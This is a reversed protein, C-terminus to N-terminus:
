VDLGDPDGSSVQTSLWNSVDNLNKQLWQVRDALSEEAQDLEQTAFRFKRANRKRFEKVEQLDKATSLGALGAKVLEGLVITSGGYRKHLVDWNNKIYHFFLRSAVPNRAVGRLVIYVDQLRIVRKEEGVELIESFLKNLIWPESTCALAPLMVEAASSDNTSEKFRKWIFAWEKRGGKRVATCYVVWRDEVPVPNQSNPDPSKMWEKYLKVSRSLCDEHDLRCAWKMVMTRLHRQNLSTIDTKEHLEMFIPSLLKLIYTELLGYRSTHKLVDRLYGFAGLAATWPVLQTEKSLFTTVQLAISYNLRGAQALSLADDIIQAKTVDPLAVAGSENALLANSLMRWNQEDYNVRYFGTEQLNFIVWRNAGVPLSGKALERDGEGSLLWFRPKTNHFSREAASTYTVPIHWKEKPPPAADEEAGAEEGSAKKGKPSMLFREQSVRASGDTYNRIVTVVPYGEQLTWTDMVDKVTLGDPLPNDKGNSQAAETLSEWLDDQEANSYSWKKLYSILGKRFTEEGLTHNMMRVLCSGKGYSVADFLEAIAANDATTSNGPSVAHTSRLSDYWMTSQVEETVFRDLMAWDPEVANTGIYEVYTAFGENLWLDNWWKMTVLNGFWQHALEHSVTLAVDVKHSTSDKRPDYLLVSERYTVLGWNEMAGAGFDPVAVMEMKTMPYNVGFYKEYFSLVKIGLNLAYEYSNNFGPRTWISVSINNVGMSEPSTSNQPVWHQEMSTSEPAVLFALLYTSMPPSPEYHDWIWGKTGNMSSTSPTSRLKRMNSLSFGSPPRAINVIFTAKFGPEDFCPFAARAHTAEFQTTAVWRKDGTVADKFSSRYFGYLNDRLKGEFPISLTYNGGAELGNGSFHIIYFDSSNEFSHYQIPIVSDEKTKNSALPSSECSILDSVFSSKFVFVDGQIIKLDKGVHLTVSRLNKADDAVRVDIYVRGDFTFNADFLSRICLTYSSPHVDTPLRRGAGEAGVTGGDSSAEQDELSLSSVFEAQDRPCPAYYYVLVGTIAAAAIALLLFLSGKAHSVFCGGGRGYKISPYDETIFEARSGTVSMQSSNM